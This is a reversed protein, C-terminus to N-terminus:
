LRIACDFLRRFAAGEGVAKDGGSVLEAVTHSALEVADAEVAQEETIRLALLEEVLAIGFPGNKPQAAVALRDRREALPGSPGKKEERGQDGIEALPQDFFTARLM